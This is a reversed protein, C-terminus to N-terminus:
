RQLVFRATQRAGTSTMFHLTYLGNALGESLRIRYPTEADSISVFQMEQGQANFIRILVKEEKLDPLEVFLSGDSPNPFVRIEPIKALTRNTRFVPVKNGTPTIGVPCYFTNLHAEYYEQTALKSTIHIYVPVAQAPLTYEFIDSQGNTIGAADSKFRISWFPSYNPNRVSYDRGSEAEFVSLDAPEMAIVGDPIQIATYILENACNNTVRIRYTYNQGPDATISLLEYKMCGNVKIDCASEERVFVDFCCSASNGCSDKATYCVQTNGTPFAGGSALGATLTLSVGPCPCDSGAVPLSYTVVTTGTGPQVAVYVDDPCDIDVNSPAPTLFQLTYTAVTDCGGIVSPITDVVTGPASYTNGGITVSDGPCLTITEAFVPHDLFVLHTTVVSDCGNTTALTDLYTGTETYTHGNFVFPEGECRTINQASASHQLVTVIVSDLSTCGDATSAALYIVSTAAPSAWPSPCLTCSLVSAPSWNYTDFVGNSTYSLQISDGACISQDPGLDLTPTPALIVQVTDTQTGGCSDQATVWYTGPGFATFTQDTSGNQWLYSEFGAGADFTHVANICAMIDPGLDLTPVSGNNVIVSISDTYHCMTRLSIDDFAFDNGLAAINLNKMEITLSTAAASNINLSFPQWVGVWQSGGQLTFTGQVVGNIKVEIVPPAAFYAMAAWFQFTYDKNPEVPVSQQWLLPFTSNVDGDFLMMMNDATPSHDNPINWQPNYVLPNDTVWYHGYGMNGYIYESTFGTNGLSFDSNTVLETGWKMADVTYTTTVLPTAVPNQISPDNLTATPTWQYTDFGSTAQLTVSTGQCITTDVGASIPLDPCLCPTNCYTVTELSTAVSLTSLAIPSPGSNFVTYDRQDQINVMDVVDVAIPQVFDCATNTNGDQDLKVLLLDNPAYSDSSMTLYLYGNREMANRVINNGSIGLRRAWQANGQKDTKILIGFAFNGLSEDYLNCVIYYGTATAVIAMAVPRDSGAIVYQKTWVVDGTLNTQAVVLEVPSFTYVGFGQLDGSAVVMLKDNDVIPKEPYMRTGTGIGNSIIANQWQFAGSNLDHAFVSARFNSGTEYRRCAGYITGNYITSYFDGQEGVLNYGSIAGTSKSLEIFQTSGADSLGTLVCNDADKSHIQTYYSGPLDQIWIFTNSTLNYRFATSKLSGLALGEAHAVGILDGSADVFMDRIQLIQNDFKFARAWLATGGQDFRVIVMSDNRLGTAFFDGGPHPFINPRSGGMGALSKIFTNDCGASNGGNQQVYVTACLTSSCIANSARLCLHHVGTNTFTYTFDADTSALVNDLFWQYNTANTSNNTFTVPIGNVIVPPVSFVAQADCLVTV